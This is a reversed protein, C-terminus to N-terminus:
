HDNDLKLFDQTLWMNGYKDVSTVLIQNHVFAERAVMNKILNQYIKNSMKTIRAKSTMGDDCFMILIGYDELAQKKAKRYLLIQEEQDICMRIIRRIPKVMLM